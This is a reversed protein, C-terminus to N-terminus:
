IRGGKKLCGKIKFLLQSIRWMGKANLIAIIQQNKSFEKFANDKRYNPYQKLVYNRMEWIIKGKEPNNQQAVRNISTILIHEIYMYELDYAYKEYLSHEKAFGM